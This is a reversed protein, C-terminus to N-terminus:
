KEKKSFTKQIKTIGLFLIVIVTIFAFLKGIVDGFRSYITLEKNKNLECKIVAPKWWATKQIVDGRQNIFCSIGTNASRALSRRNEIARLRSFSAHQKYGPTDGWWGDNTIVFILEAGKKVQQSIFEGYISEYCISPAFTVGHDKLVKPEKEIGLSGSAGDLNIAMQELWPLVTTFPIKEVGLVLKSKHVFHPNNEHDILLSTNYSEIYGPGGDIKRSATSNKKEYFCLTSAGTLFSVGKWNDKRTLMYEYFPLRTLEEEYFTASIATEPALVFKTKESCGKDGQIFIKDLQSKLVTNFKENYPDINPQIAVIEVPDIKENYSFYLGLSVIIPLGIVLSFILILKSQEKWSKLQVFVNRIIFFGILNLVLVWLTGGLIGTISFWQVISPTISFVNGFNLWPWSLEWHFHIYEFAIWFLLLLVYGTKGFSKRSVHFLYFVFAMILANLVIAFVAGGASANWIWWTAGLNYIFFTILAHIYVKSSRYKQKIVNSEVILLPIWSIFVLPTISGTYPFSLVMLIGSIISLLFRSKRTIQIM